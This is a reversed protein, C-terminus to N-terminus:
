RLSVGLSANSEDLEDPTVTGRVRGTALILHDIGRLPITEGDAFPRPRPARNLRAELWATNRHLFARAEDPKGYEPVTLVARGGDGLRLRYSRSRANVRVAVDLPAGGIELTM